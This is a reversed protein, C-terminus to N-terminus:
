NWYTNQMLEANLCIQERSDIINM